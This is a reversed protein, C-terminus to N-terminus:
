RGNSNLDGLRIEDGQNQDIGPHSVGSDRKQEVNQVLRAILDSFTEGFKGCNRLRIYSEDTLAITHKKSM